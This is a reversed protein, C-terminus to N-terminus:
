IFSKRKPGTRGQDRYHRQVVVAGSESRYQQHRKTALNHNTWPRNPIDYLRALTGWKIAQFHNYYLDQPVKTVAEIPALALELMIRCDAPTFPYLRVKQQGPFYYYKKDQDMYLQYSYELVTEFAQYELRDYKKGDKFLSALGVPKYEPFLISIDITISNNADTDFNSKEVIVELVTKYQWTRVCFDQLIKILEPKIVFDPCGAVEGRIWTLFESVDISSEDSLTSTASISTTSIPQYGIAM